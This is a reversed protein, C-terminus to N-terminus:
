SGGSPREVGLAAMVEAPTEVVAQRHGAIVVVANVGPEDTEAVAPQVATVATPNLYVATAAPTTLRVLVVGAGALDTLLRVVAEDTEQMSEDYEVLVHSAGAEDPLGHTIRWVSEASVDVSFGDLTAISICGTAPMASPAGTMASAPAASLAAIFSFIQFSPLGKKKLFLLM